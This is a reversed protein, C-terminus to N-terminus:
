TALYLLRSTRRMNNGTLRHNNTHVLKCITKITDHSITQVRLTTRRYQQPSPELRMQTNSHPRMYLLQHTPYTTHKPTLQTEVPHASDSRQQASTMMHHLVIGTAV